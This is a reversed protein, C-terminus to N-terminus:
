KQMENAGACKKEGSEAIQMDRLQFGQCSSINVEKSYLIIAIGARALQTQCIEATNEDNQESSHDCGTENSDPLEHPIDPLDDFVWLHNQIFFYATIKM